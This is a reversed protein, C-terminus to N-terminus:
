FEMREMYLCGIGLMVVLFIAGSWVPQWPDLREKFEPESAALDPSGATPDTKKGTLFYLLTRYLEGPKPLVTYAPVVGYYYVREVMALQPRCVVESEGNAPDWRSVLNVSHGVLLSGKRDYAIASITGQGPAQAYRLENSAPDLTYLVGHAFLVAIQQSSPSVRLQRPEHTKEPQLEAKTELSRSDLVLLRGDAAALLATPGALACQMGTQEEGELTRRVRQNYTGNQSREWVAVEGRSYLLLDNTQPDIAMAIPQLTFPWDGQSVQEFAAPPKGWPLSFGLVKTGEEGLAVNKNSRYIGDLTVAIVRSDSDLLISATGSPLAAGRTRPWLPSRPAVSLAVDPGRVRNGQLSILQNHEADYFPGVVPFTQNFPEPGEAQARYVNSWRAEDAKYERLLFSMGPLESHPFLGLIADDAAAVRQIRNLDVVFIDMWFHLVGVGFCIAWFANGIVIAVITNRFWLGALATVSYYVAFVFTYVPISALVRSDWISLRTGLFLWLLVAFYAVTVLSFACGGLFKTLFLLSRSIPKSLLLHLSGPEFLQPFISATMLLAVLVGFIGFTYDVFYVVNPKLWEEAQDRTMPLTQEGVFAYYITASKAPSYAITEPFAGELVLRNLRKLEQDTLSEGKDRRRLLDRGERRLKVGKFAAADYWAPDDIQKVLSRTLRRIAAEIAAGKSESGPLLAAVNAQGEDDLKDWVHRAPSPTPQEKLGATALRQAFEPWSLVEHRHLGTTAQEYLGLPFILAFVLTICFIVVWLVRSHLAERFSDVLIALYPRM